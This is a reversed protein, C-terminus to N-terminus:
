VLKEFMAALKELHRKEDEALTSFVKRSDESADEVSLALYRDYSAAELSICLELIQRPTKKASWGLADKLLMGGEMVKEGSINAAMAAFDPEEASGTMERYLSSILEKHCEEAAALENFM